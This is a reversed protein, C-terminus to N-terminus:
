WFRSAYPLLWFFSARLSRLLSHHEAQIISVWSNVPHQPAWSIANDLKQPFQSLAHQSEHQTESFRNTAWTFHWQKHISIPVALFLFLFDERRVTELTRREGLGELSLPVSLPSFYNKLFGAGICLASFLPIFLCLSWLQLISLFSIILFRFTELTLPQWDM